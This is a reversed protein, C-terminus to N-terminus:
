EPRQQSLGSDALPRLLDASYPCLMPFFLLWESQWLCKGFGPHEVVSFSIAAPAVPCVEAEQSWAM